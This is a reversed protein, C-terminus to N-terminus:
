QVERIISNLKIGKFGKKMKKFPIDGKFYPSRNTKGIIHNLLILQPRTKDTGGIATETLVWDRGKFRIIEGVELGKLENKAKDYGHKVGFKYANNQCQILDRNEEQKKTEEEM